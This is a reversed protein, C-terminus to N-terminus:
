ITASPYLTVWEKIKDADKMAQYVAAVKNVEVKVHTAIMCPPDVWIPFPLSGPYHTMRGDMFQHRNRTEALLDYDWM